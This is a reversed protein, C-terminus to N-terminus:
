SNKTKNWLKAIAYNIICICFKQGFSCKRDENAYRCMPM